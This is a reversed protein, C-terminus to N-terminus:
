KKVEPYKALVACANGYIERLYGAMHNAAENDGYAYYPIQNDARRKICRLAERMEANEAVLLLRQADNVELLKEKTRNDARLQALEGVANDLMEVIEIDSLLAFDQCQEWKDLTSM